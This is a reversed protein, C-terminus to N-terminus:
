REKEVIKLIGIFTEKTYKKPVGVRYVPLDEPLNQVLNAKYSEMYSAVNSDPFAYTYELMYKYSPFSEMEWNVFLHEILDLRNMRGISLEDGPVLFFVAKLNSKETTPFISVPNLKSFIKVYGFTAKYLANKLKVIAKDWSSMNAKIVSSLNYAFINLPTLWSFVCGDRLIVFDDGMFSFGERTFYTATTTKGAGSQAPFLYARGDKAVAAAHIASYGKRNLVFRILPDITYACVFMDALIRGVINAHLHVVIGGSEFGTIELEWKGLKYSDKCYFYDSKVFYKGDLKQCGGLDPTFKGFYITFDPHEERALEFNRYEMTMRRGIRGIVRFTVIGHIGYDRQTVHRM